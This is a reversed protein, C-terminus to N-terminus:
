NLMENYVDAIRSVVIDWDYGHATKRANEQMRKRSTSDAAVLELSRAMGSEDGINTLLGNQGNKIYDRPGDCATSVVACGCYMAELVSLGLSERRSPLVFIESKKMLRLVDEDNKIFGTFIVNIDLSRALGELEQREDGAGVIWLEYEDRISKDLRAYSKILTDVSKQAALRGVYIIRKDKRSAKIKDIFKTDIGSQLVQVNRPKIGAVEILKKRLTTNVCLVRDFPMRASLFEFPVGPLSMISKYMSGWQGLYLDHITAISPKKTRMAALSCPMLALHGNADIIDYNNERSLRRLLNLWFSICNIYNRKPSTKITCSSVQEINVDPLNEQPTSTFLDVDFGHKPLRRAMEYVRREVGFLPYLIETCLAVKMDM